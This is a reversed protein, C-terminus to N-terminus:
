LFVRQRYPFQDLIMDQCSLQRGYRLLFYTIQM